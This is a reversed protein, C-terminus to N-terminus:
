KLLAKLRRAAILRCVAYWLDHVVGSPGCQPVALGLERMVRFYRRRESRHNAKWPKHQGGLYHIIGPARIAELVERAPVGRWYRDRPSFRMQRTLWGDTYNWRFHLYKVEHEFVSNLADQDPNDLSAVTRVFDILREFGRVRRFNALDLVLVGSNFYFRNEEAPQEWKFSVGNHNNTERVAGLASEGLDLAYLDELDEGVLVDADLYVVNGDIGSLLGPIFIRGWCALNWGNSVRELDARYPMMASDGDYWQLVAFAYRGVLDEALRRNEASITGFTVLHVTLPREADAAKLLSHLAIRLCMMTHDDSCFCVHRDASSSPFVSMNKSTQM